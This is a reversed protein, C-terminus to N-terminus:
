GFTGPGQRILVIGQDSLRKMAERLTLCAGVSMEHALENETPMPGGAQYRGDVIDDLLRDATEDVRSPRAM